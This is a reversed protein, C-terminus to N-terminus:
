LLETESFEVGREEMGRLLQEFGDSDLRRGFILMEFDATLTNRLVAYDYSHSSDYMEYVAAEVEKVESQQAQIHPCVVLIFLFIVFASPRM